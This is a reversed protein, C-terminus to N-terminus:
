LNRYEPFLAYLQTLNNDSAISNGNGDSFACRSQIIEVKHPELGLRGGRARQPTKILVHAHRDM